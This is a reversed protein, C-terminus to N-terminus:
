RFDGATRHNYYNLYIFFQPSFENSRMMEKILFDLTLLEKLISYKNIKQTKKEM